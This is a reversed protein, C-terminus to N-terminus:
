IINIYTYIYIYISILETYSVHSLRQTAATQINGNDGKAFTPYRDWSSSMSWRGLPVGYGPQLSKWHKKGIIKITKLPFGDMKKHNKSPKPHFWGNRKAPNPIPVWNKNVWRTFATIRQFVKSAWTESESSGQRCPKSYWAPAKKWSEKSHRLLVQTHWDGNKLPM